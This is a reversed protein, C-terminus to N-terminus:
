VYRDIIVNAARRTAGLLALSHFSLLLKVCIPSIGRAALCARRTLILVLILPGPSVALYALPVIFLTLLLSSSLGGIVVIGLAQRYEAGVAHGLALPLMGAVMAADDDPDASLSPPRRRSNRADPQSAPAFPASRMSSWCFATRQSSVSSCVIGLMSYLNLPQSPLLVVSRARRDVRAAGDAMIAFPLVYSRYLM